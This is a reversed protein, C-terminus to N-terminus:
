IKDWEEDSYKEIERKHYPLNLKKCRKRISNDTM